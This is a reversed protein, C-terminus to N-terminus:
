VTLSPSLMITRMWRAAEEEGIGGGEEVVVRCECVNKKIRGDSALTAPYSQPCMKIKIKHTDMHSKEVHIGERVDYESPMADPHMNVPNCTLTSHWMTSHSGLRSTKRANNGVHWVRYPNVYVCAKQCATHRRM